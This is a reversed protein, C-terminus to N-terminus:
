AEWEVGTKPKGLALHRTHLAELEDIMAAGIRTPKGHARVTRLGEDNRGVVDAFRDRVREDGAALMRTYLEAVPVFAHVALLVGWIPRLDPRVPSKVMTDHANELLVDHYSALNAKGHQHEHVIAEAMTRADPHLTLYSAGLYERYSASLHKVPEYGVPVLLTQLARLEGVVVPLHTELIGLAEVLSAQWTEVPQDGLSCANGAKDPHAELMSLPNTDRLALTVGSALPRYAREVSLRPDAAGPLEDLKVRVTRAGRGDLEIAGNELTVRVDDGWDLFVGLAPAALSRGKVVFPAALLGRRALELAWGDVAAAWRATRASVAVAPSLIVETALTADRKFLDRLTTAVTREGTTALDKLLRSAEARRLRDLHAADSEPGPWLVLGTGRGGTSAEASATM